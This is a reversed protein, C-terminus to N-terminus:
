LKSLSAIEHNFLGSSRMAQIVKERDPHYYGGLDISHGQSSNLEAVIATEHESLQQALKGFKAKLEPNKDQEALAQAWYMALYFHSGRNDLEHVKAAPSKGNDLYKGNARDLTEALILADPNNTKQGVDEL